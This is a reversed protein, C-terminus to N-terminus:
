CCIEAPCDSVNERRASARSSSIRKISVGGIDITLHSM